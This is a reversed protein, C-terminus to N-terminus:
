FGAPIKEDDPVDGKVQRHCLFEAQAMSWPDTSDFQGRPHRKCFRERHAAEYDIM